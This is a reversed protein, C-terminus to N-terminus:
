LIMMEWGCLHLIFGDGAQGMGARQAQKLELQKGEGARNSEQCKNFRTVHVYDILNTKINNM